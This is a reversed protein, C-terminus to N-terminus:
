DSMHLVITMLMAHGAPITETLDPNIKAYLPSNVLKDIEINTIEYNSLNIGAGNLIDEGANDFIEVDYYGPFFGVYDEVHTLPNEVNGFIVHQLLPTPPVLGATIIRARVYFLPELIFDGVTTDVGVPSEYTQWLAPPIIVDSWYVTGSGALDDPANAAPFGVPVFAMWGIGNWYEWAVVTPSVSPPLTWALGLAQFQQTRGFYISINDDSVDVPVNFPYSDINLNRQGPTGVADIVAVLQKAPHLESWPSDAVGIFEGVPFPVIQIKKIRGKIDLPQKTNGPDLVPAYHLEPDFTFNPRTSLYLFYPWFSNTQPGFYYTTELRSIPHIIKRNNKDQSKDVETSFPLQYTM